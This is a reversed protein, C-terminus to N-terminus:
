KENPRAQSYTRSRKKEKEIRYEKGQQFLLLPFSSAMLPAVLCVVFSPIAAAVLHRELVPFFDEKGLLAPPAKL